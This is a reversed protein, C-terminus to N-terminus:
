PKASFMSSLAVSPSAGSRAVVHAAKLPKSVDSVVSAASQPAALFFTGPVWELFTKSMVSNWPWSDGLGAVGICCVTCWSVSAQWPVREVSAPRSGPGREERAAMRSGHAVPALAAPLFRLRTSPSSLSAAEESLFSASSSSLSSSPSSEGYTSLYRVLFGADRSNHGSM